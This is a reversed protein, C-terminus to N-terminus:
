SASDYVPYWCSLSRENRWLEKRAHHEDELTPLDTQRYFLELCLVM